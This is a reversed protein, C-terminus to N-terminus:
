GLAVFFCYVNIAPKNGVVLHHWAFHLNYVLKTLESM